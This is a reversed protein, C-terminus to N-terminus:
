SRDSLGDYRQTRREDLAVNLEASTLMLRGVLVLSFLLATAVGLAGYTHARGEVLRTTIYVNFAHIVLLGFGFLVAGPVLATWHVDGHPLEISVALWAGGIAFVYVLLALLGGYQRGDEIWSVAELTILEVALATGLLAVGRRSTRVGRASGLWALAHVKAIARHLAVLAYIVAPVSLVFLLGRHRGSAAAAVESGILGHLGAKRAVTGASKDVTDAYIGLGSVLLLCTPLLLVFLRYALAGALLGGGISSDREVLSFCLDVSAHRERAADASAKLSATRAAWRARGDAV